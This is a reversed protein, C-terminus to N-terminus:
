GGHDNIGCLSGVDSWCQCPTRRIIGICYSIEGSKIKTISRKDLFTKSHKKRLNGLDRDYENAWFVDLGTHKFGLDLERAFLSVIKM